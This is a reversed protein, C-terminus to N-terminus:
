VTISITLFSYENNISSFNYKIKECEKAIEIFGIGANGYEDVDGGKIRTIYMEHLEERTKNNLNNIKEIFPEVKINEIYNGTSLVYNDKSKGVLFVGERKNDFSLSHKSINQLLETLVLFILTKLSENEFHNIQLNREIIKLLTLVNEQSFDGKYALYTNNQDMIEHFDKTVVIPYNLINEDEPSKSNFKMQLYFFSFHDNVKEFEFELPNGTKRSMEILGLGAGGKESIESNGLIENYLVKIQDKDLSNIQLLKKEISGKNSNSILNASSIIYTDGVIRLIFIGPKDLNVMQKEFSEGHRIINQFSEAILFTVKKRVNKTENTKEINKESLSIIKETFEDSMFGHYLFSLSDARLKDFFDFISATDM